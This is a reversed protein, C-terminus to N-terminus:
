IHGEVLQRSAKACTTAAAARHTTEPGSHTEKAQDVIRPPHLTRLPRKLFPLSLPRHSFGSIEALSSSASAIASACHVPILRPYHQRRSRQQVEKRGQNRGGGGGQAPTVQTCRASTCSFRRGPYSSICPHSCPETSRIYMRTLRM